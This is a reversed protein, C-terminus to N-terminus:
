FDAWKKNKLTVQSKLHYLLGLQVSNKQLMHRALGLQAKQFAQCASDLQAKKGLLELWFQASILKPESGVSSTLELARFRWRRPKPMYNLLCWADVGWFWQLSLIFEETKKGCIAMLIIYVFSRGVIKMRSISWRRKLASLTSSSHFNSIKEFWLHLNILVNTKVQMASPNKSSVLWCCTM